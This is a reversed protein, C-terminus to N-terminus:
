LKKYLDDGLDKKLKQLITLLDAINKQNLIQSCGPVPSNIDKYRTYLRIHWRKTNYSRNEMELVTFNSSVYQYTEVERNNKLDLETNFVVLADIFASLDEIPLQINKDSFVITNFLGRGTFCVSRQRANDKLSTATLLGVNVDETSGITDHTLKVLVNPQMTFKVLPSYDIISDQQAHSIAPFFFLLLFHKM